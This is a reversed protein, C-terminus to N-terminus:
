ASGKQLGYAILDTRTQAQLVRMAEVRTILSNIATVITVAEATTSFGYGGTVPTVTSVATITSTAVASQATAAQQVVPTYGYFSIKDTADQGLTTGDTRADTLDRVPM